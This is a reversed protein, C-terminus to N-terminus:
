HLAINGYQFASRPPIATELCTLKTLDIWKPCPSHFLIDAHSSKRYFMEVAPDRTARGRSSAPRQTAQGRPVLLLRVEM